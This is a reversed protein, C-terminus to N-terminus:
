RHSCSNESPPFKRSPSGQHLLLMVLHKLRKMCVMTWLITNAVNATQNRELFIVLKTKSLHTKEWAEELPILFTWDTSCFFFFCSSISLLIAADRGPPSPPSLTLKFFFCHSEVVWINVTFIQITMYFISYSSSFGLPLSISYFHFCTDNGHLTRLSVEDSPCFSLLQPLSSSKKVGRKKGSEVCM